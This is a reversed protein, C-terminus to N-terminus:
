FSGEWSRAPHPPFCAWFPLSLKRLSLLAPASAAMARDRRWARAETPSQSGGAKSGSHRNGPVPQSRARARPEAREAVQPRQNGPAPRQAQQERRHARM